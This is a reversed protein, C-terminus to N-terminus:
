GPDVQQLSEWESVLGDIHTAEASTKSEGM